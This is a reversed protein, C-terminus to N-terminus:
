GNALRLTIKITVLRERQTDAMKFQGPRPGAFQLTPRPGGPRPGRPPGHAAPRPGGKLLVRWQQIM